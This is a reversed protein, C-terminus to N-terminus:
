VSVWDRVYEDAFVCIDVAPVNGPAFPPKWLVIVYEQGEVAKFGVIFTYREPATYVSVEKPVL